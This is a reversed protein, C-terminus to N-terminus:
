KNIHYSSDYNQGFNNAWYTQGNVQYYVCYEFGEADSSNLSLDVTWLETNNGKSSVYSMPVDTYTAWDDETYRVVVNKQYAYNQLLVNVTYTDGYQYGDRRVTVPAVGIEENTYDNGNNNDWIEQGDAIYKIAYKLNYSLVSAKWIKSGDSLTTVYEAQEDKWEEGDMYNYHIYVQQDSANDKTQVYIERISFGYKSFYVGTSYMSVRDTAASVNFISLVSFISFLMTIALLMSISRKYTKTKRM